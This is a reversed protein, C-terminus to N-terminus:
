ALVLEHAIGEQAAAPSIMATALLIGAFVLIAVAKTNQAANLVLVTRKMKMEEKM